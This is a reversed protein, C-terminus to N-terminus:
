PMRVSDDFDLTAAATDDGSPVGKATGVGGYVTIPTGTPPPGGAGDYDGKENYAAALYVTKPLGTFSVAGGNEVVSNTMLPMSNENIDPTDFVWVIVQHAKDVTGTGTYHVTVKLKGEDRATAAQTTALGAGVALVLGALAAQWRKVNRM